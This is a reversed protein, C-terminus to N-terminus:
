ELFDDFMKSTKKLKAVYLEVDEDRTEMLSTEIARAQIAQLDPWGKKEGDGPCVSTILWRTVVCWGGRLLLRQRMLAGERSRSGAVKVRYEDVTDKITQTKALDEIPLERNRLARVTAEFLAPIDDSERDFADAHGGGQIRSSLSVVAAGCRAVRSSSEGLLTSCRTTKRRYSVMAEYERDFEVSMGRPLSANLEVSLTKLDIDAPSSFFIGDTDLEIPACGRALAM